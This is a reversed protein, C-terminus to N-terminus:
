TLSENAPSTGTDSPGSATPLRITFTAGRGEQGPQERDTVDDMLLTVNEVPECAKLPKGDTDGPWWVHRQNQAVWGTVGDEL